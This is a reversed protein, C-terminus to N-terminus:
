ARKLKFKFYNYFIHKILIYRIPFYLKCTIVYFFSKFVSTKNGLLLNLPFDASTIERVYRRKDDKKINNGNSIISAYYISEGLINFLLLPYKDLHTSIAQKKFNIIEIYENCLRISFNLNAILNMTSNQYEKYIYTIDSCFTVKNALLIIQFSFIQDETLHHDVCRIDNRRLFDISYLKNWLAPTFHNKDYYIYQILQYNSEIVLEPYQQIQQQKNTLNEQVYSSVIVDSNSQEMKKYLLSICNPTIEDDGDLFFIYKGKANKIATNRTAGTGKNVKHDIIRILNGRSNEQMIENVLEISKDSGKDDIVIIEYEEFDQELCSKLTDSIRKEVNYVSIAITVSISYDM